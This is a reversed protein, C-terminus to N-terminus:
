DHQHNSFLKLKDFSINSNITKQVRTRLCLTVSYIYLIYYLYLYLPYPLVMFLEKKPDTHELIKQQFQKNLFIRICKDVLNNPFYNKKSVNELYRVREPFKSFDSVISFIQFLLRFILGHKYEAAIFSNFNSYFGKFTPEHYVKTTFGKNNRSILVELFQLSENVEKENAFKINAHKTNLYQNFKELHYPSLFLVVFITWM